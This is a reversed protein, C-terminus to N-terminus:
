AWICARSWSFPNTGKAVDVILITGSDVRFAWPVGVGNTSSTRQGHSSASVGQESGGVFGVHCLERRGWTRRHCTTMRLLDDLAIAWEAKAVEADACVRGCLYFNFFLFCLPDINKLVYTPKNLYFYWVACSNQINGRTWPLWIALDSRPGAEWIISLYLHGNTISGRHCHFPVGLNEWEGIRPGSQDKLSVSNRCAAPMPGHWGRTGCNRLPSAWTGSLAFAWM